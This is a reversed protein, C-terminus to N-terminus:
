HAPVLEINIKTGTAEAYRRLMKLSPNGGGELRAIVSQTTNMKKAVEAQTLNASNRAKILANVIAFEAELSEYEDRFKSDKKWAEALEKVKKRKNM